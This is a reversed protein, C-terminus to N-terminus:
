DNIAAAAADIDAATAAAMGTEGKAKKASREKQTAAARKQKQSPDAFRFGGSAQLQHQQEMAVQQVDTHLKLSRAGFVPGMAQEWNDRRVLLIGEPVASANVSPCDRDIIFEMVFRLPLQAGGFASVAAAAAHTSNLTTVFEAADHLLKPDISSSQPPVGTTGSIVQAWKHQSLLITGPLSESSSVSVSPSAVGSVSASAPFSFFADRLVAILCVVLLFCETLVLRMCRLLPLVQTENEGDTRVM